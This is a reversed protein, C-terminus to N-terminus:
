AVQDRMVDVVSRPRRALSKRLHSVVGAGPAPSQNSSRSGSPETAVRRTAKGALALAAETVVLIPAAVMAMITLFGYAAGTAAEKLLWLYRSMSGTTRGLRVIRYGEATQTDSKRTAASAFGLVTVDVAAAASRAAWGVRPDATPEHACLMLVRLKRNGPETAQM